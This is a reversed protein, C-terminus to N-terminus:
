EGPFVAAWEFDEASEDGPMSAVAHVHGARCEVKWYYSQAWNGFDKMTIVGQLFEDNLDLASTVVLTIDEGCVRNFRTLEDDNEEDAYHLDSVVTPCHLNGYEDRKFDKGLLM